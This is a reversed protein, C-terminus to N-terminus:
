HAKILYPQLERYLAEGTTSVQEIVQTFEQLDVVRLRSDMRVYADEDGDFGIKVSDYAYNFKLLKDCLEPSRKINDKTAVTVFTTLLGNKVTLIVEFEKLVESKRKITWVPQKSGEIRKAAFKTGALLQDVRDADTQPPAPAPSQAHVSAALLAVFLVAVGRHSHRM